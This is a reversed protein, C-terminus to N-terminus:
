LYLVTRLYYISLIVKFHKLSRPNKLLDVFFKICFSPECQMVGEDSTIELIKLNTSILSKKAM